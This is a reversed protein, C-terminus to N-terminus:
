TRALDSVPLMAKLRYLADLAERPSLRDPDLEALATHLPDPQDAPAPVDDPPAGAFLPLAGLPAGAALPGGHKEMMALLQASRRVVPAPV